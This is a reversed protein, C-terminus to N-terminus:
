RTRLVRHRAAMVIGLALLVAGIAQLPPRPLARQAMSADPLGELLSILGARDLDQTDVFMGHLRNGRIQVPVNGVGLYDQDLSDMVFLYTGGVEPFAECSSVVPGYTLSVSEPVEGRFVRSVDLVYARDRPTEIVTAIFILPEDAVAEAVTPVSAVQCAAAPRPLVVLLSIALVAAPILRRAM